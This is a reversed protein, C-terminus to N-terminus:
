ELCDYSLDSPNEQKKPLVIRHSLPSPKTVAQEDKNGKTSCSPSYCLPPSTQPSSSQKQETVEAGM